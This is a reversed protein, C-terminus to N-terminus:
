TVEEPGPGPRSAPGTRALLGTTPPARGVMAQARRELIRVLGTVISSLVFYLVLLLVFLLLTDPTQEALRLGRRTLEDISVLSLLATAKLLQILLNNFPPLMEVVAQPLIVHRMRQFGSLNLAISGEYQEKPVARVAGRVVEAGYAGLNLGLVLIGAFLPVLTYGVLIPLAFYFWFLQVVESTGRFVEIYVRAIGRLLHNRSLAMLGATFALVAALAAGGVFAEVTVVLGELLVPMFEALSDLM